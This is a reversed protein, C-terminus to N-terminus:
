KANSSLSIAVYITVFEWMENALDSRLGSYLVLSGSHEINNVAAQAATRLHVSTLISNTTLAALISAPMM